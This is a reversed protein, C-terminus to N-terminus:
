YSIDNQFSNWYNWQWMIKLENAINAKNMTVKIENPFSLKETEFGDLFVQENRNEKRQM